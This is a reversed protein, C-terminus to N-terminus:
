EVNKKGKVFGLELAQWIVGVVPVFIILFWLPNKGIAAYRRLSVIVYLVHLAIYLSVFLTAVLLPVIFLSMLFGMVSFFFFPIFLASIFVAPGLLMWPFFVLLAVAWWESRKTGFSEYNIYNSYKKM